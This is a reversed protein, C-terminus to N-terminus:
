AAAPGSSEARRSHRYLWMDSVGGLALRLELSGMLYEDDSQPTPAPQGTVRALYERVVRRRWFKRGSIRTCPDPLYLDAM